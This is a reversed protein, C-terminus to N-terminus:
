CVLRPVNILNRRLRKNKRNVKIKDMIVGLLNVLYMKLIKSVNKLFNVKKSLLLKNNTQCFNVFGFLSMSKWKILLKYSKKVKKM